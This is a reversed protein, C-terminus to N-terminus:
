EKIEEIKEVEIFFETIWVTEEEDIYTIRESFEGEIRVFDENEPYNECEFVLGVLCCTGDECLPDYMGVLYMYKDDEIHIKQVEGEIIIKKGLYNSSNMYINQIEATLMTINYQTLDLVEREDSSCGVLLICTLFCVLLQKM